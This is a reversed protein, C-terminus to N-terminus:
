WEKIKEFEDFYRDIKKQLAKSKQINKQVVMDARSVREVCEALNM